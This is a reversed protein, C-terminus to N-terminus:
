QAQPRRGATSAARSSNRAALGPLFSSIVAPSGSSSTVRRRFPSTGSTKTHRPSASIIVHDLLPNGDLLVRSAPEVLWGAEGGHRHLAALAPLTHVVDGISSLRVLLAKM